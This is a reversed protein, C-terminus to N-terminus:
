FPLDGLDGADQEPAARGPRGAPAAMGGDGDDMGEGRPGGLLQLDTAFVDLTTRPQGDNGTWRDLRLRGEVFIQRGKTVYQQAIEALRRSATVRYWETEETFSGDPNRRRSNVAVSFSSIPDGAPTYRQEPDRGVNGIIFIKAMSM